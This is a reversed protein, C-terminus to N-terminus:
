LGINQFSNALTAYFMSSAPINRAGNTVHGASHFRRENFVEFIGITSTPRSYGRGVQYHGSHNFALYPFYRKLLQPHEIIPAPSGDGLHTQHITFFKQWTWGRVSQTIYTGANVDWTTYINTLRVLSTISTGATTTGLLRAWSAQTERHHDNGWDISQMTAPGCWYSREQSTQTGWMIAYGSPTALQAAMTTPAAGTPTSRLARAKQRGDWATRMENLEAQLRAPGSLSARQAILDTVSLAGTRDARAVSGAEPSTAMVGLQTSTPRRDVFGLGLCYNEADLQFCRLVQQGQQTRQATTRAATLPGPAATMRVQQVLQAWTRAAGATSLPVLEASSSVAQGSKLQIHHTAHADPVPATLVGLIICAAAGRSAKSM